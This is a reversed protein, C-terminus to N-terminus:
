ITFSFQFFFFKKSINSNDKSKFHLVANELSLLLQLFMNKSYVSAVSSYYICKYLDQIHVFLFGWKKKPVKLSYVRKYHQITMNHAFTM